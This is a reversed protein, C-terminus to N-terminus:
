DLPGGGYRRLIDLLRFIIYGIKQGDNPVDGPTPQWPERVPDAKEGKWTSPDRKPLQKYEDPLRQQKPLKTAPERLFTDSEPAEHKGQYDGDPKRHRGPKPQNRHQPPRRFQKPPKKPNVRPPKPTKPASTRAKSAPRTVKKAIWKVVRQTIKKWMTVQQKVWTVVTDVVKNWLGKVGDWFDKVEDRAQPVFIYALVAVVVVVIAIAMVLQGVTMAVAVGAIVVAFRGDADNFSTPNNQAYSYGNLQQPDQYDPVPDVSVFKGIRPDYERAGLHVLGTSPDGTGGVFDKQGPWATPQPGRANGYPDTRRRQVQQTTADVTLKPTGQLDTGVWSVKAGTRVSVLKDGHSYYRTGTLTGDPHMLVETKGLYLTTGSSDRRIIRNGEADYLFSTTASDKVVKELHGEADWSFTDGNRQKLNGSRDYSYEDVATGTPGTTSVNRVAHPQGDGPAPYTYSSTSTGAPSTRTETKRNGTKDFTWSHWYPAPGGLASQAPAAACDGAGPTWADTLRRLSDYKFCQTDTQEGPQTATDTIKTVNGSPDYGYSTDAVRRPLTQRETVVRTLRRTGIEYEYNNQVWKGGTQALTVVSQEGYPTYETDSVYTSTDSALTTPRSDANYGYRLIEAPLDAIGPLSEASPTGDPNYTTETTYTGGLAGESAPITVQAGKPRGATDYGTIRTTYADDGVYRTASTPSGKALTDYVWEARKPGTVSGDRVSTRRGLEDYSFALTTGTADTSSVIQDLDNYAYTTIGKDPDDDKVKRGRVDYTFRWVNDAPDTVSALRGGATYTYRTRDFEGDGMDQRLETLQGESNFIKTKPQDGAPPTTTYHDAQASYATRWKEQGESRFIQATPQESADYQTITQGPLSAENPLLVATGPPADNYYPGNQKIELGRSDYIHDTVMRGGGPAPEQSQRPRMLGDTLDYSTEFSGDAQLEKTAVVGPADPRIQYTYETNPTDIGKKRGPEWVKTTRGLPDYAVDTRRGDPGTITTEENWAPEFETVTQHGNARTVVTKTVPGATAPTFETRTPRGLADTTSTPRGLADYAATFVTQYTAQGAADFGALREGKTVDGKTATGVTSSNDYYLREDNVVDDKTWPQDCGVSVSQVRAQLESVGTSSNGAYQFRTCQDDAATSVDNLDSTQLLTGDAAYTNTTATKRLGGTVAQDQRLGGQETAFSRTTGWPRTRTSTASSSWHDTIVRDIVATGDYKTVERPRGAFQESDAVAAGTSDTVQVSKTGGNALKDGNMGRFYRNEVVSKPGSASGKTVRVRDYGRWQSWTKRGIEVLGDEEDHHWAPPSLYEVHTVVPELGSILDSETVDTVVYKNFWDQREAQGEPTWKVPHCRKGNTDPAPVNGPLSCDKGSYAIALEGGTGYHIASVRWWNLPPIGDVGDVRNALQIGDFNVEPAAVAGGVLGTNTIGELWMGPRTGDGPAPFTHRLTWSEVDGFTTGRWVQTTVKALRKKTWFSPSYHNKCNTTSACALDLPTDPYSTCQTDSCREATSFLARATAPTTYVQGDRQGYEIRAINGGRTYESVTTDTQNRSYHDQERDYFLSMTNGHPDVVYDLNWRYAQNCYSAAFDALHCPEGAHNGFVPVTWASGTNQTENQWGPLHNLGFYYQTGDKSTIRWYEGDNDGNAAKNLREVKSGDDSRAHWVKTQDDQVLEGGKGNLTYTANDTAWCLDGVTKKGNNGTQESKAACSAYRREISGGPTLDFGEGAWSPQNNTATTRGDVSGSSYAVTLDLRPGATGPPLTMPYSWTFDGASGGVSWTATPALSSATFDGSTGAPGAQVFYETTSADAGVDATLFGSGTNTTPIPKCVVACSTVRLRSSWDGGFTDRFASYDLQLNVTGPQRLGDARALRLVLGNDKRGVLEVKVKAPTTGPAKSQKHAPAIAIPLAGAKAPTILSAPKPQSPQRASPTRSDALPVAVEATGPSPWTVATARPRAAAEAPDPKGPSFTANVGPVSKEKRPTFPKSDPPRQAAAEAAPGHLGIILASGVLIGLSRYWTRRHRQRM